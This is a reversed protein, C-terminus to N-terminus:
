TYKVFCRCITIEIEQINIRRGCINNYGSVLFVPDIPPMMRLGGLGLALIAICLLYYFFQFYYFGLHAMLIM